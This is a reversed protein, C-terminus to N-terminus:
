KLTKAFEYGKHTISYIKVKNKSDYHEFKIYGANQLREMYDEYAASEEGRSFKYINHYGLHVELGAHLWVASMSQDVVNNAWKSFVELEYDSFSPQSADDIMEEVIPSQQKWHENVFQQLNRTFLPRFNNEDDYEFYLTSNRIKKKFDQLKALQDPTITSSDVSKRFYLMVPKGEKIHEEIEEISGSEATDTPTGVKSAFICVLMDSRNVLQRDITKKKKYGMEPYSDTSWHMPLLVMGCSEANVETWNVIVDKAIAVEDKVDSPCGIMIRYVSAKYM